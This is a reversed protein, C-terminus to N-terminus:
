ASAEQTASRDWVNRGARAPRASNGPPATATV